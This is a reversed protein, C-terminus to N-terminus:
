RANINIDLGSNLQTKFLRYKMSIMFYRGITNTRREMLYNLQSVRELGTNRDLVDNCSLSLSGRHDKMFFRTAEVKLLPIDIQNGFSEAEYRTMDFSVAFHWNKTPTYSIETWGSITVYIKNLSQMISYRADSLEFTGGLSIDLKESNRSYFSLSVSHRFNTLRNEAGNVLSIGQSVTENLAVKGNLGIKRIPMSFEFGAGARYDNKVNVLTTLQSFDPLITQSLNIKDLTYTANLNAFMSIQSFQDFMMWNAQLAHMKEPSLDRNGVFLNLPNAYTSVPLLQSSQPAELASQYFVSFSRSQRYDYRWSAAPLLQMVQKRIPDEMSLDNFLFGKELNTSVSLKSKKTNYKLSIGANVAMYSSVFGPSLSDVPIEAADSFGNLRNIKDQIGSFDLSPVVYLLKGIKRTASASAQYQTKLGEEDLFRSEALLSEPNYMQTLNSWDSAALSSQIHYQASIKAIKWNTTGKKLYDAKLNAQFLHSQKNSYGTLGNVLDSQDFTQSFSSESQDGYTLMFSGDVKLNRLSDIRNKWGLNIRNSRDKSLVESESETQYSGSPIFNSSEITELLNKNAGSGLYSINFRNNKRAEYMYNLGAAGSTVLGSVPRGLDVPMNGDMDSSITIGGGSMMSQLGGNFDIYDKFSFGFRNVNNLMGLAAFQYEKNFRYLKANSQYKDSPAYGGSVDGFYANKRGEKLIINLTKQYSGDDIGSLETEDSKKDYVQVKSIADAPLNKTAVQPDSSFFEKGDVLVQQVDEGQAKINGSRDVEVGPLKKLLDEAVADPNTKFSGANYEVTDKKILIPIREAEVNVAGLSEMKPKLIIIGLNNAPAPITLEKYYSQFGLFSAQLLYKGTNIDKIEFLGQQNTIGFYLLTSDSPNLLVTTAYPLPSGKDDYIFGKIADQQAAVTFALGVFLLSILTKM